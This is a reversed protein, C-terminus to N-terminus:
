LVPWVTISSIEVGNCCVSESQAASDLKGDQKMHWSLATLMHKGVFVYLIDDM